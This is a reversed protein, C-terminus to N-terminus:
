AFAKGFDGEFKSLKEALRETNVKYEGNLIAAKLTEVKQTNVQPESTAQMNNLSQVQSTLQVSDQNKSTSDVGQKSVEQQKKAQNQEVVINKQTAQRNISISM